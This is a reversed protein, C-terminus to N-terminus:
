YGMWGLLDSSNYFGDEDASYDAFFNEESDLDHNNLIGNVQKVTLKPCEEIFEASNM